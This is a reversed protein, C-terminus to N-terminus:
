NKAFTGKVSLIKYSEVKIDEPAPQFNPHLDQQALLEYVDSKYSGTAPLKITTVIKEALCGNEDWTNDVFWRDPFTIEIKIEVGNFSGGRIAYYEFIFDAYYFRNQYSTGNYENVTVNEFRPTFELYESLNDATLEVEQKTTGCSTLVLLIALLLPLLRKM